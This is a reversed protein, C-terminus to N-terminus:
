AGGSKPPDEDPPNGQGRKGFGAVNWMMKQLGEIGQQGIPFWSKILAEPELMNMASMMRDELRKMVVAQLPQVDPLGLFTRAEQPSCDIDIRIKM